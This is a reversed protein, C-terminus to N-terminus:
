ALVTSVKPAAPLIILPILYYKLLPTGIFLIFINMINEATTAPSTSACGAAAWNKVRCTVARRNLRRCSSRNGISLRRWFSVGAGRPRFGLMRNDLRVFVGFGALDFFLRDIRRKIIGVAFVVEVAPVFLGLFREAAIRLDSPYRDFCGLIM